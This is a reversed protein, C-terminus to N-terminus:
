PGRPCTQPALERQRSELGRGVRGERRSAKSRSMGGKSETGPGPRGGPCVWSHPFPPLFSTPHGPPCPAERQPASTPRPGPPPLPSRATPVALASAWLHSQLLGAHRLLQPGPRPPGQLDRSKVAKHRPPWPQSLGALQWTSPRRPTPPMSTGPDPGTARARAAGPVSGRPALLPARPSRTTTALAPHLLAAVKRQGPRHGRCSGRTARPEPASM